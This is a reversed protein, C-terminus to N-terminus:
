ARQPRIIVEFDCVNKAGFLQCQIFSQKFLKLDSLGVQVSIWASCGLVQSFLILADAPVATPSGTTLVSITASAVILLAWLCGGTVKMLAM